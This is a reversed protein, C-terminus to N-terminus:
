RTEGKECIIYLFIPAYLTLVYLWMGTNVCSLFIAQVFIWLIYGYGQEAQMPKYFWQYIKKYMFFLIGAGMLCLLSFAFQGHIAKIIGAIALILGIYTLIVTYDYFGIVKKKEM